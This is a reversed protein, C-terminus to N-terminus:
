RFVIQGAKIPYKWKWSPKENLVLPAVINVADRLMARSRLLGVTISKTRILNKIGYGAVAFFHSLLLNVDRSVASLISIPEQAYHGGRKLYDYCARKLDENRMVGYLADALINITATQNHRTAYFQKVLEGVQKTDAFNQVAILRTGLNKADTLAVTMGGGTLPHRMNLSDGLLVAGPKYVPKAPIHHNPMVKFKGENVAEWFSPLVNAPLQPAINHELYAMLEPSKRPAESWPFDILMRTETANIPYMLCPSPEAVVVHGYNKYPLECSKLLLGMFYSTVKKENASLQERFLSFMGDSVVTLKASITQSSESTKTKYKVGNIIGDIETLSEVTGEIVTVTPQALMEKRLAQLFKGNRFGRGAKHNPYRITFHEGQMFLAYGEVPQADFGNLCEELGMEQLVDVGGPQLLEGIIVDREVMSKEIVAVRKGHKGLYCALSAGAIGAGIICIDFEEAMKFCYPKKLLEKKSTKPLFCYM